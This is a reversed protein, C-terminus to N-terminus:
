NKFTTKYYTLKLSDDKRSTEHGRSCSFRHRGNGDTQRDYTNSTILCMIESVVPGITTLNRIERLHYFMSRWKRHIFEHQSKMRSM